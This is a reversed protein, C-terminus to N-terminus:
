EPLAYSDAILDLSLKLLAMLGKADRQQERALDAVMREDVAVAAAIWALRKGCACLARQYREIAQLRYDQWSLMEPSWPEDPPSEREESPQRVGVIGVAFDRYLRQGAIFQRPTIQGRRHYREIPSVARARYSAIVGATTVISPEVLVRPEQAVPVFLRKPPASM